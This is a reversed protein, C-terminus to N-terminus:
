MIKQKLKYPIKVMKKKERENSKLLKMYPNPMRM